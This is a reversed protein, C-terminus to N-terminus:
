DLIHNNALAILTPKLASIGHIAARPAILNPGCKDIPSQQDVIPTELNFIRIDSSNWISYLEEGLLFKTNGNKFLDINKQTPVLDGAILINM